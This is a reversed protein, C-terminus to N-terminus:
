ATAKCICALARARDSDPCVAKSGARAASLVDQEIKGSGVRVSECAAIYGSIHDGANGAQNGGIKAAKAPGV